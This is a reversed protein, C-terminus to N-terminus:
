ATNATQEFAGCGVAEGFPIISFSFLMRCLVALWALLFVGVAM